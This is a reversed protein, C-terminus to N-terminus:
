PESVLRVELNNVAATWKGASESENWLEVLESKRGRLRALAQLALPALNKEHRGRNDEIWSEVEEPLDDAPVDNLGAVVEAAALGRAAVPAELYGDGADIVERLTAKLIAWGESDELESIWDLADDNEWIGAGWAGM